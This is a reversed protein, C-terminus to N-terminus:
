ISSAGPRWIHIYKSCKRVALRRVAFLTMWAQRTSSLQHDSILAASSRCATFFRGSQWCWTHRETASIAIYITSYHDYAQRHWCYVSRLINGNFNIAGRHTSGSDWFSNPDDTSGIHRTERTAEVSSFQGFKANETSTQHVSCDVCSCLFCM